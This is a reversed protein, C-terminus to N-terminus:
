VSFFRAPETDYGSACLFLTPTDLKPWSIKETKLKRTVRHHNEGAFLLSM